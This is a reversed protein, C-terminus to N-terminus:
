GKDGPLEITVAYPIHARAKAFDDSAGGPSFILSCFGTKIRLAFLKGAPYFIKGAAGVKYDRGTAKKIAKAAKDGLSTM